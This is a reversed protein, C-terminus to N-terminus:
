TGHTAAPDHPETVPRVGRHLERISSSAPSFGCILVPIADRARASGCMFIDLAAYGREPWTHITIHSEALVIVGSVGGSSAFQHLQVHLITAGATTAAGKLVNEIYQVDDLTRAGWFDVLLHIGAFTQGDREIFYDSARSRLDATIQEHATRAPSAENSSM